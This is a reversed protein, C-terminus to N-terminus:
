SENKKTLTNFVESATRSTIEAVDQVSIRCAAAIHAAIVPIYASENRQGRYPAPSIFPADTELVLHEIGVAYITDKLKSNKFTVVGGIGLKFGLDVIRSAQEASGSFCHFIGTLGPKKMERVIMIIEDMSKRSHIVLPLHYQLALDIQKRFVEEQERRYTLDWYFDLGVEGVACYGGKSLQNIVLQLEERWNEKVSTPHLGMMPFCNEPFDHCLDHMPEVSTSDINPLLLYHVRNKLARKVVEHRDNDFANLYLHTHTDVYFM